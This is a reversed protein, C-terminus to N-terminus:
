SAPIFRITLPYVPDAGAYLEEAAPRGADAGDLEAGDLEAGGLEAGGLEAGGLEAGGLEAGGFRNGGVASGAHVYGARLMAPRLREPRLEGAVTVTWEGQGDQALTNTTLGATTAALEIRAEALRAINPPVAGRGAAPRQQSLNQRMVSLRMVWLQDVQAALEAPSGNNDLWHDTLRRREDDGIQATMRARADAEVLGRDVLRTIRLEADAGVGVVLAFGAAVQVSILLPIDNVILADAPASEVVENFRRRVLPHTIGNLAARADPDSFVLAAMAPRNLSGTPLIVSPGFRDAIAALGESGAAVVERAVQDSDVLLGGRGALQGSVTSKGSGIGGTVAIILM